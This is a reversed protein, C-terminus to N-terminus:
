WPCEAIKSTVIVELEVKAQTITRGKIGRLHVHQGDSLVAVHYEVDMWYFGIGRAYEFERIRAKLAEEPDEPDIAERIAFHQRGQELAAKAAKILLDDASEEASVLRIRGVVETV